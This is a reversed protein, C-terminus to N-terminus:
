NSLCERSVRSEERRRREKEEGEGRRRRECCVRGVVCEERVRREGCV